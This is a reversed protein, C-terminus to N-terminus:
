GGAPTPQRGTTSPLPRLSAALTSAVALLVAVAILAHLVGLHSGLFGILPPGGLFACYGVSAVVSVRGAAAAPEDAAASMGVPFGLSTGAGWLLAGVFALPINPSFVFVILGLVAVLALARVVAVRGHRELLHPGAWRAATMAALFAAFGLTGVVAPAHRGDILAVGIWDSGTGESFAFALVFVGVLLTRRERWRGFVSSARDSGPPTVAEGGGAAEVRPATADRTTADRTTTADGTTTADPLFRRVLAPVAVAVIIAVAILHVTVAIQLGVMAAGLLAGAVTGLSFGAHFRAMIAKGLHREVEAGQVNMAVDWSGNAFGLVFLGILVPVVGALYGAAVVALAAALLVAMVTVTRCTGLRHVVLGSIPLAIVSGAAIALLVLGLEAPNLQLRARVQPIRSAWSAFAFGAGVFAAYSARVAAAVQEPSHGAGGTQTM